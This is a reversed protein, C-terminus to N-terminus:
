GEAKNKVAKAREAEALIATELEESLTMGLSLNLTALKEKIEDLSKKGFNRYKLMKSETKLCLEGLDLFLKGRQVEGESHGEGFFEFGGNEGLGFTGLGHLVFRFALIM